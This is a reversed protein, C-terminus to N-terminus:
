KLNFEIAITAKVAVPVGDRTGPAFRWQKAAMVAAVDLGFRMDLSRIVAIDGVTGDPLVVAELWVEGEILESMAEGTYLPKVEKILRLGQLGEAGPEYVTFSAEANSRHKPQPLTQSHFWGGSEDAGFNMAVTATVDVPCSAQVAPRYRWLSVISETIGAVMNPNALEPGNVSVVRPATVSGDFAITIEFVALVGSPISPVLLEIDALRQVGTVDVTAPEAGAIPKTLCPPTGGAAARINTGASGLRQELGQFFESGVFENGYQIYQDQEHRVKVISDVHVRAPEVFPSVFLHLQFEVPVVEVGAMTVLPLSQFFPSGDFDTFPKWESVLLQSDGDKVFTELGWEAVLDQAAAWVANSQLPYRKAHSYPLASAPAVEQGLAVTQSMLALVFGVVVSANRRAAMRFTGSDQSDKMDETRVKAKRQDNAM